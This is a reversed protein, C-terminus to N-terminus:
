YIILKKFYFYNSQKEKLSIIYFGTPYASIDLHLLNGSRVNKMLVTKGTLDNLELQFNGSFGTLDINLVDQAPNPSIPIAYNKPILYENVGVNVTDRMTTLLMLGGRSSGLMMDPWGDGDLDSFAPRLFIGPHRTILQESYADKIRNYQPSYRKSTDADIDEIFGIDAVVMGYREDWFNHAFILEPIGNKNLDAIIPTTLHQQSTNFTIGAFAPTLLKFKPIGTKKTNTFCSIEGHDKGIFLDGFNDANIDYVFPASFYGVDISDLYDTVFQFRATDTGISSNKYYSITGDRKGFLMDPKQDGDIDGFALNLTQYQKSSLGMYDNNKIRFEAKSKTGTNEFLVIRDNQHHTETYNGTTVVFLDPDGDQDYDFFVPQTPGGLDIMENQLFDDKIFSFQPEKNTGINKYLWIQHLGDVSLNVDMPSVLMDNISDNDLDLYFVGPMQRVRAPKTGQPFNTDFSIIKDRIHSLDKKGNTLLILGPYGADGLVVDVDGDNDMDSAMFTSGAHRTTSRDKNQQSLINKIHDLVECINTDIDLTIQNNGSGEIFNGWCDTALVYKLSDSNDFLEQSLNKHYEVNGQVQSFTLIDLDGDGDIDEIAPIDASIIYMESEPRGFYSSKLPNAVLEFKIQFMTSVNKYVYLGTGVSSAYSFLDPKGDNNYDKIIITSAISDPFLLEFQSRYKFGFSDKIGENSYTLIRNDIRDLVILDKFGDNNLDLMGFLPYKLGGVFPYRFEKGSENYVKLNHAAFYYPLNQCYLESLCFFLCYSVLLIKKM